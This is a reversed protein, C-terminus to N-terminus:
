LVMASSILEMSTSGLKLQNACLKGNDTSILSNDAFCDVTGPSNLVTVGYKLALGSRPRVQAEFGPPMELYVGTGVAGMQSPNLTLPTTAILDCGAAELSKYEPASVTDDITKYHVAVVNPCWRVNDSM